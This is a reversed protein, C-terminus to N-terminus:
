APELWPQNRTVSIGAGCIDKIAIARGAGGNDGRNGEWDHQNARQPCCNAQRSPLSSTGQVLIDLLMFAEDMVGSATTVMM